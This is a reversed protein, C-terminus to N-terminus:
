ILLLLYNYLFALRTTGTNWSSGWAGFGSSSKTNTTGTDFSLDIMPSTDDLKIEYFADFKETTRLTPAADEVKDKKGTTRGSGSAGWAMDDDHWSPAHFVRLHDKKSSKSEKLEKPEPSPAPSVALVVKGKEFEKDKSSSKRQTSKKDPPDVADVPGDDEEEQRRAGLEKEQRRRHERSEEDAGGAGGADREARPTHRAARKVEKEEQRLAELEEEQKRRREGREEDKARRADEVVKEAADRQPRRARRTELYEIDGDDDV